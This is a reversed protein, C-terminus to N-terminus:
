SPNPTTYNNIENIVGDLNETVEFNTFRIVNINKLSLYKSREMDEDIKDDLYHSNGDIEIALRIKPCYFDLIYKGVGYQRRFKLSNVQGNRLRNWVLVEPKPMNNRLNQRFGKQSPVNFEYDDKM